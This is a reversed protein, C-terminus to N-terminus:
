TELKPRAPICRAFGSIKFSEIALLAHETTSRKRLRLVKPPISSQEALRTFCGIDWLQALFPLVGFADERHKLGQFNWRDEGM